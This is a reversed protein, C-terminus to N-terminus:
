TIKKRNEKNVGIKLRMLFLLKKRHANDRIRSISRTTCFM